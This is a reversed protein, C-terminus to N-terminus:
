CAGPTVGGVFVRWAADLYEEDARELEEPSVLAPDMKGHQIWPVLEQRAQMWQLLLGHLMQMIFEPRVDARLVGSKQLFRLHDRFQEAM